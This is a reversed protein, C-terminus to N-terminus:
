PPVRKQSVTYMGHLLAALVRFGNLHAPTGWVRWSIEAALPGFNVMNHPRTPFVNGNLLSKGITSVYRIAFIHGSLTTCHHASPSNKAIKQTRCKTIFILRPFFFFSSSLFLVFIYTLFYTLLHNIYRRYRLSSDPRTRM